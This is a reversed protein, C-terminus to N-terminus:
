YDGFPVAGSEGDEADPVWCNKKSDFPKSTFEIKQQRSIALFEYGPDKEFEETSM